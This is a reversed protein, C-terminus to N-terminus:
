ANTGQLERSGPAAFRSTGIFKRVQPLRPAVRFVMRRALMCSLEILKEKADFIVLVRGPPSEDVGRSLDFWATTENLLTLPYHVGTGFIGTFVMSYAGDHAVIELTSALPACHYRGKAAFRVKATRPPAVLQMPTTVNEASMTLMLAKSPEDAFRISLHGDDTAFTRHGNAFLASWDLHSFIQAGGEHGAGEYSRLQVLLGQERSVYAGQMNDPIVAAKPKANARPTANAMPKVNVDRWVPAIGLAEAVEYAVGRPFLAPSTAANTRNMFVAISVDEKVFHMLISRWGRLAGAHALMARGTTANIAHNIGSAYSAAAGDNFPTATLIGAVWPLGTAKPDRLCAAWKLLDEITSVIGASAAWHIGNVEEIWAGDHFRYGRADGVLPKATDVGLYSSNMGLPAFIHADLLTGCSKGTVMELIQGLMEFNANCYLNQSGPAFMSEPAMRNVAVGDDLTFRQEARAGMMMALTWQDRIGSKNQMLHRITLAPDLVKAWSLYRSPHADLAIRKARAERMVLACAFQKSISCIRFPTQPTFAARTELNALGHGGSWVMRGGKAIGVAIGPEDSAAARTLIDSLIHCIRSPLTM